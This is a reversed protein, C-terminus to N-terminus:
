AAEKRQSREKDEALAEEHARNRRQRKTMSPPGPNFREHRCVWCRCDEGCVGEALRAVYRTV